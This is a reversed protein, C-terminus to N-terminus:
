KIVLKAVTLFGGLTFIQYAPYRIRGKPFPQKYVGWGRAPTVVWLNLVAARYLGHTTPPSSVAKYSPLFFESDQSSYYFLPKPRRRARTETKRNMDAKERRVGMRPKLPM